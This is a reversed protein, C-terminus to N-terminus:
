APRNAVRDRLREAIWRGVPGALPPLDGVPFFRLEASERGDPTPEGSWRLVEFVATYMYFEHGNSLLKHTKAGSVVGMLQAGHVVLGTEEHLERALTDEFGEGLECNGGPVSWRSAGVKRQLLWEGDGNLVLGAAGVLNVARPGVLARLSAIYDPQGSKIM